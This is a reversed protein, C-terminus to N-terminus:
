NCSTLLCDSGTSWYPKNPPSNLTFNIFQPTAQGVQCTLRVQHMTSTPNAVIIGFQSNQPVCFLQPVNQILSITEEFGSVDPCSPLDMVNCTRTSVCDGSTGCFILTASQQTLLEISCCCDAPPCDTCDEICDSREEIQAQPKQIETRDCATIFLAFCCCFLIYYKNYSKM